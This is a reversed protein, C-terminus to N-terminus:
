HVNDMISSGDNMKYQMFIISTQLLAHLGVFIKRKKIDTHAGKDERNHSKSIMELLSLRTKGDDSRFNNRTKSVAVSMEKAYDFIWQHSDLSRM